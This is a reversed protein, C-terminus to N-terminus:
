RLVEGAGTLEAPAVARKQDEVLHLGAHAPGAPEEGVLVGADLGVDEHQGLRQAAAQQRDAGRDHAVTQPVARVAAVQPGLDVIAGEAAVREGAADGELRELQDAGRRKQGGDALASTLQERRQLVGERPVADDLADRPAPEHSADLEAVDVMGPEVPLVEPERLQGAIRGGPGQEDLAQRAVSNQGLDASVVPGHEADLGRQRHVGLGAGAEDGGDVVRHSPEGGVIASGVRHRSNPPEPARPRTTHSVNAPWPARTANVYWVRDSIAFLRVPRSGSVTASVSSRAESDSTSRTTSSAAEASPPRSANTWHAPTATVVPRSWPPECGVIECTSSCAQSSMISTLTLDVNKARRRTTSTSRDEPPPLM